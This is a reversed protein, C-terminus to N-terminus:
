VGGSCQTIRATTVACGPPMHIGLRQALLHVGVEHPQNVVNFCGFGPVLLLKHIDQASFLNLGVPQTSSQGLQIINSSLFFFLDPNSDHGLVNKSTLHCWKCLSTEWKAPWFMHSAPHCVGGEPSKLHVKCLSSQAAPVSHVVPIKNQKVNNVCFFTVHLSHFKM